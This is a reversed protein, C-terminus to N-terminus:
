EEIKIGAKKLQSLIYERERKSMNEDISNFGYIFKNINNILKSLEKFLM